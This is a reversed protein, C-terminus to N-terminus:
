RTAIRSRGERFVALFRLRIRKPEQFGGGSLESLDAKGPSPFHSKGGGPFM